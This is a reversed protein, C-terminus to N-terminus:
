PLSIMGGITILTGEELAKDIAAEITSRVINGLRNFGLKSSAERVLLDKNESRGHLLHERIASLIEEYPMENIQRTTTEDNPRYQNYSMPDQESTWIFDRDCFSTQQIPLKKLMRENHHQIQHGSRGIGFSQRVINFLRQKEIPAECLIVEEMKRVISQQYCEKDYDFSNAIITSTLKASEYKKQRAVRRSKSDAKPQITGHHRSANPSQPEGIMYWAPKNHTSRSGNECFVFHVGFEKGLDRVSFNKEKDGLIWLKGGLPRKDLYSMGKEQLRIILPESPKEQYQEDSSDPCFLTKRPIQEEIEKTREPTKSGHSGNVQKESAILPANTKASPEPNPESSRRPPEKKCDENDAIAATPTKETEESDPVNNVDADEHEELAFAIDAPTIDIDNQGDDGKRERQIEQARIRVRQILETDDIPSTNDEKTQPEIGFEALERYVREMTTSPDRYYESGRIRIFRWGVRELIAQREMDERIKDEGSHWREGDCEIAVRESGCSAVMDIRYSGVEQQQVINYGRSVLQKGVAEEFPSDAHSAVEELRHAFTAPDSAYSLLEGRIDGPKLNAAPDLSHVIWLQDKARSTAVNYRKRISDDPGYTVKRLTVGDEGSDVMSLFIVDREDGQFNSANGCLIRHKEIEGEGVYKYLLQQALKVQEDGLLSIIGFTKNEYEPQELCALLLFVIAEAEQANQKGLRIGSEVRHTVIPPMLNSSGPDRLPKIKFDYSLKNSFGIIQPMCRFHERLMLPQFSTAAIDYLSTKPMYLYDNPIIGKINTEILADAREDAIGIAMPSVQKDDGVIIIKKAFYAISLATVNSQSAEDVIVIDFKNSRPDLSELAKAMPMIWAPVAPQCSAMKKRAEAKLMPARKGTGKGIKKMTLRWGQLAQKLDVDAETKKLLHMWAQCEALERTKERYLASLEVAQRQLKDLSTKSLENLKASLELWKWADRIGDPPTSAGHANSRNSIAQAWQPALPEIKALLEKRKALPQYKAYTLALDNYASTYSEEDRADLAAITNGLLDSRVSCAKSLDTRTSRLVLESDSLKNAALSIDCLRPIIEAIARMTREIDKEESDLSSERLICDVPMGAQSMLVILQRRKTEYWDLLTTIQAAWGAAIRIPNEDDLASFSPAGNSAMLNNWQNEVDNRIEDLALRSKILECEEANQIQRENILVDGLVEGIGKNLLLDLKGVKGKKKLVAELKDLDDEAWTRQQVPSFKATKGLSVLLYHELIENAQTIRSILCEWRARYSGGKKGDAAAKIRWAQAEGFEACYEKLMLISNDSKIVISFSGLDNTKVDYKGEVSAIDITWAAGEAIKAIAQRAEQISSCHAAFDKPSLISQPNPLDCSLELETKPDISANSQYLAILEENTLPFDVASELHGPIIESLRDKNEFVFSAADIPNIGEGDVVISEYEQHLVRFILKRTKALSEIVKQREERVIESRRKMEVYNHQSTFETIGEVSREMDLNTDDILSVCLSQLGQPLKGKLVALAKRTQSTVLISKGQALFHGMLNAITHTKGTGPPGQVLVANSREVRKAIELQERNAPMALLIEADEGNTAAILQENSPREDDCEIEATGGSVVNILYAPIEGGDKVDEIISEIAKISGDLKKRVFIVPRLYSVLQTDGIFAADAPNDFYESKPSLSYIIKKIFDPAEDRDFPHHERENLEDNLAQVHSLDINDVSDLLMTYIQSASDADDIRITNSTADFSIRARKTLIPYEISSDNKVKVFGSGFALESTESDRNLDSYVRFLDIFLGRVKEIRLQETVWSDRSHKWAEFHIVRQEDDTFLEQNLARTEDDLITREKIPRVNQKYQDWGSHLWGDLSAPPKPCPLYEPKTIELIPEDGIDASSDRYCLSIEENDVPIKDLPLSWHDDLNRPTKIGLASMERLFNYLAIVKETDTYAM